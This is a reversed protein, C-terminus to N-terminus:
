NKENKVKTIPYLGVGLQYVSNKDDTDELFECLQKRFATIMEKAKLIKNSNTAMMISSNDRLEFDVTDISDISRQLVEKQYKRKVESTHLPSIMHSLHATSHEIYRGNEISLYGVRKLRELCPYLEQAELGLNDIFFQETHDFDNLFLCELIAYHNQNSIIEFIDDKLVQYEKTTALDLIGSPNKELYYRSLYVNEQESTVNLKNCIKKILKDNVPREGKLIKSFRSADIELFKSFARLSYSSNKDIRKRLEHKLLVVIDPYCEM